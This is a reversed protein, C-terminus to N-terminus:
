IIMAALAKYLEYLRHILSDYLDRYNDFSSLSLARVANNKYNEITDAPLLHSFIGRLDNLVFLPSILREAKKTDCGCSKCFEILLKRTKLSDINHAPNDNKLKVLKRLENCDIGENLVGDLLVINERLERENFNIPKKIETAKAEVEDELHRLDIGYTEKVRKYFNNRLRLIRMEVIPESFICKIQAQYLETEIVTHDSEINYAKLISIATDDDCVSDLDGLFIIVHNHRNIGFVVEWDYCYKDTEKKALSGYSESAFDVVYNDDSFFANLVKREFFVPCSFGRKGPHDDDIDLFPICLDRSDYILEASEAFSLREKQSTMRCSQEGAELMKQYSRYVSEPISDGLVRQGCKQCVLIPCEAVEIHKGAIQITVTELMMERNGGCDCKDLMYGRHFFASAYEVIDNFILEM